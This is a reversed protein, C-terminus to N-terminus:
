RWNKIRHQKLECEGMGMIPFSYEHLQLIYNNQKFPPTSTYLLQQPPALNHRRKPDEENLNTLM